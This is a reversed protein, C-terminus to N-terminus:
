KSTLLHSIDEVGIAGDYYKNVLARDSKKMSPDRTKETLRSTIEARSLGKVSETTGRDSGPKDIHTVSTVAKRMPQGVNLALNLAKALTDVHGKLIDLEQASATREAEFKKLIKEEIKAESMMMPAGGPPPGGPPPGGPPPGGPPPGGPPPGGPAAGGGTVMQIAADIAIAHVELEEPPLQAYEMALAEIDEPSIQGPTMEGGPAAGADAPPAGADGEPSAELGADEPPPGETTADDEFPGVAKALKTSKTVVALEQEVEALIGELEKKSLKISM